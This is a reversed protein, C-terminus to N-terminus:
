QRRKSFAPGAYQLMPVGGGVLPSCVRVCLIDALLSVARTAASDEGGLVTGDRSRKEFDRTELGLHQPSPCLAVRNAYSSTSTPIPPPINHPLIRHKYPQHRAPEQLRSLRCCCYLHPHAEYTPSTSKRLSWKPPRLVVSCTRAQPSIRMSYEQQVTLSPVIPSASSARM